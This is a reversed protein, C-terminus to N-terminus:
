ITHGSLMKAVNKLPNPASQSRESLPFAEKQGLEQAQASLIASSYALMGKVSSRVAQAPAMIEGSQTKPYPVRFATRDDLVTHPKALNPVTNDHFASTSTMNLPIFIQDELFKGFTQGSVKEIVEAAICYPWNSYGFSSRFPTRQKLFNFAPLTQDKTLLLEGNVGYWWHNSTALGSNHILLDAISLQDTVVPDQCHLEPLITRVPTSWALKGSSVLIGIASATMSKTLSAVGYITDTNPALEADVDRHGHHGSQIITGVRM